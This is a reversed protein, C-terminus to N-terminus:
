SRRTSDPPSHVCSQYYSQCISCQHCNRDCNLVSEFWEDSIEVDVLVSAPGGGIDRPQLSARNVYAGLVSLYKAQDNLTVRGALKWSDALGDYHHLHQPLIWAGTLRRWPRADLDQRCLSRPLGTGYGMEYFHQVRHPCGPLCSENVLLRM